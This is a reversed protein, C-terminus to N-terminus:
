TVNCRKKLDSVTPASATIIIRHKTCAAINTAKLPSIRNSAIILM